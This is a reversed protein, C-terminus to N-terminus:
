ATTYRDLYRYIRDIDLKNIEYNDGFLEYVEEDTFKNRLSLFFSFTDKKDM